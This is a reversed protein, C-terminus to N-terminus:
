AQQRHTIRRQDRRCPPEAPRIFRIRGEPCTRKDKPWKQEREWWWAKRIISEGKINHPKRRIGRFQGHTTDINSDPEDHNGTILVSSSVFHNQQSEPSFYFAFSSLKVNRGCNNKSFMMKIFGLLPFYIYDMIVTITRLQPYISYFDLNFIMM